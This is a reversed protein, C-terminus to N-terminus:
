PRDGDELTRDAARGRRHSERVPGELPLHSAGVALHPALQAFRKPGIGSVGRLAELRPFPGVAQRHAVIRDALVPGIGPLAALDAASARNLDLPAAPLLKAAPTRRAVAAGGGSGAARAGEEVRPRLLALDPGGARLLPLGAWAALIAALGLAAWGALVAPAAM